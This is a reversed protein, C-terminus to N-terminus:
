DNAVREYQYLEGNKNLGHGGKEKVYVYKTTVDRGNQRTVNKSTSCNYSLLQATEARMLQGNSIIQIALSGVDIQILIQSM